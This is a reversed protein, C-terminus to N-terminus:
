TAPRGATLSLQHRPAVPSALQGLQEMRLWVAKANSRIARRSGASYGSLDAGFRSSVDLPAPLLAM